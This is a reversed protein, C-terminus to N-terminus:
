RRGWIVIQGQCRDQTEEEEATREANLWQAKVMLKQVEVGYM